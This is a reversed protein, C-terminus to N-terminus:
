FTTKTEKRLDLSEHTNNSIQSNLFPSLLLFLNSLIFFIFFLLDPHGVRHRWRGPRGVVAPFGMLTKLFFFVTLSLLSLQERKKSSSLSVLKFFSHIHTRCGKYVREFRNPEGPASGPKFRVEGQGTGNLGVRKAGMLGM